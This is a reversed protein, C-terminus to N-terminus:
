QQCRKIKLFAYTVSQILKLWKGLVMWLFRTYNCFKQFLLLTKWKSSNIFDYLVIHMPFLWLQELRCHYIQTPVSCHSITECNSYRLISNGIPFEQSRGMSYVDTSLTHCSLICPVTEFTKFQLKINIKCRRSLCQLLNLLHLVSIRLLMASVNQQHSWLM